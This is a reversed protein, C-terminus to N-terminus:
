WGSPVSLEGLSPTAGRNSAVQCGVRNAFEVIEEPAAEALIGMTLAALFSDGAGVNDGGPRASFGPHHARSQRDVLTAGAAGHSLAVLRLGCEEILWSAVDAKGVEQSLLEAEADNLKAVDTKQVTETVLAMDFHGPRLNMDFIRLTKEGVSDLACALAERGTSSRQILSGFVLARSSALAARAAEAIAIHEWAGHQSLSYRPEGDEITVNVRGTDLGDGDVQILSTDVGASELEGIAVRGPEDDGVRSLLAVQAGLQALHFAVNCSAGGLQRGDPFVDWLVEGFCVIQSM